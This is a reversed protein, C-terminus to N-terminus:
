SKNRKLELNEMFKLIKLILNIKISLFVSKSYYTAKALKYMFKLYNKDNLAKRAEAMLIQKKNFNDKEKQTVNIELHYKEIFEYKGTKLCNNFVKTIYIGVKNVYIANTKTISENNYRCDLLVDKINGVKFNNCFVRALFEKDETHLANKYGNLKKFVKSRAFFTPHVIGITGYSLLKKLYKHTLLKDTTFFVGKENFLNVNSGILDLNNNVLYNLQKEFRNAHSIDDADMRAIFDGNCYKLARNLSYVLGMNKKNIFYKIRKDKKAYNEVIGILNAKKPNDIIIIFEINKYTQNLISDIAECLWKEKENYVSM